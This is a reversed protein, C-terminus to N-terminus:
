QMVFTSRINSESVMMGEKPNMWFMRQLSVLGM